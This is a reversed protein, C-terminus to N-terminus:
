GALQATNAIHVLQTLTIPKVIFDKVFPYTFARTQDDKIVSVTVIYVQVKKNLTYYINQLADLFGWGDLGPMKIDVFLVDPLNVADHRNNRIYNLLAVADYHHYVGKFPKARSVSLQILRHFVPDDDLVFLNTM